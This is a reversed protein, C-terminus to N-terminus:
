CVSVVRGGTMALLTEPTLRFVANPTGTAAWIEDYVLVSADILTELPRDHGIPPVGGIAYGTQQRVFDADARAIAEGVYESLRTENVRQPGSAIVLFARESQQGKFILSTAIQEVRCGIVNAADTATRTSQPFEIVRLPLNRSALTDQIKRANASLTEMM